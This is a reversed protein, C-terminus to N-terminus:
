QIHPHVLVSKRLNMATHYLIASRPRGWRLFAARFAARQVGEVLLDFCALPEGECFRPHLSLWVQDSTGLLALHERRVLDANLSPNIYRGHHHKVDM